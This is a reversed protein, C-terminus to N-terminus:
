YTVKVSYKELLGPLSHLAFAAQKINNNEPDIVFNYATRLDAKSLDTRVFNAGQLDCEDFRAQSLNTQEWDTELLSCKLFLTKKLRVKYFSSHDLTCQAFSVSFNFANCTEFLLGLMKCDKFDVDQFMSNEINALSLNCTTFSCNIFKSNRLIAHEFNCEVFRCKEYEAVPFGKDQFNEKSFLQNEYITM